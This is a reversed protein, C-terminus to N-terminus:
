AGHKRRLLRCGGGWGGALWNWGEIYLDDLWQVGCVCGSDGPLRWDTFVFIVKGRLAAPIEDQHVLLYQGDDKGLHANMEQARAVMTSGVVLKEDGWLFGLIEYTRGAITMETPLHDNEFRGEVIQQLANAVVDPNLTGEMVRRLVEWWRRTITGLVDDAVVHKTTM